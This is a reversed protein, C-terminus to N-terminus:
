RWWVVVAEAVRRSNGARAAFCVAIGISAHLEADPGWCLLLTVPVCGQLAVWTKLSGRGRFGQFVSAGLVVIFDSSCV